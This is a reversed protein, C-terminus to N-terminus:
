RTGAGPPEFAAGRRERLRSEGGITVDLSRVAFICRKLPYRRAAVRICIYRERYSAAASRGAFTRRREPARLVPVDGRQPFNRRFSFVAKIALVQPKRCEREGDM